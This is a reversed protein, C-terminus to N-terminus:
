KKSEPAKKEESPAAEGGKDDKDAQNSAVQEVAAGFM